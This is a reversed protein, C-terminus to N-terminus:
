INRIRKQTEVKIVTAIGARALVTLNGLLGKFCLILMMQTAPVFSSLGAMRLFSLMSTQSTKGDLQVEGATILALMGVMAALILSKKQSFYDSLLGQIPASLMQCLILALFVWVNPLPTKLAIYVLIFDAFADIAMSASAIMFNPHSYVKPGFSSRWDRLNEVADMRKAFLNWFIWEGVVRAGITFAALPLIASPTIGNLLLTVLALVHPLWGLATGIGSILGFAPTSIM